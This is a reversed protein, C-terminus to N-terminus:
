MLWVVEVGAMVEMHGVPSESRSGNSRSSSSSSGCPARAQLGPVLPTLFGAGLVDHPEQRCGAGNRCRKPVHAWFTGKEKYNPKPGLTKM